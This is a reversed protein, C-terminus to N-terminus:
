TGTNATLADLAQVIVVKTSVATEADAAVTKDAYDTLMPPRASLFIGRTFM